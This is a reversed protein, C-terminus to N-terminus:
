GDGEIGRILRGWDFAPGPDLKNSSVHHHGLIGSFQMVRSPPLRVDAVDGNTWRPIQAQLRPLARRLAVILRILSDYQADTYVFQFLERKQVRGQVMPPVRTGGAGSLGASDAVDYVLGFREMLAQPNEYAGVNAIEIGVSRDNATGAHRARERVDLTQYITGDLDVLFHASLGREDHLVAFCRGSTGAADYHLVVQDVNARVLKRVTALDMAFESTTALLFDRTGYREPTDCGTAPDSPLIEQPEFFRHKLYANFGGSQDWRVVPGGTRIREGCVVIADDDIRKEQLAPRRFTWLCGILLMAMAIPGIWFRVPRRRLVSRVSHPQSQTM